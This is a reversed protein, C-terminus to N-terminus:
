KLIMTQQLNLSKVAIIKYFEVAMISRKPDKLLDLKIKSIISSITTRLLSNPDATTTLTRM